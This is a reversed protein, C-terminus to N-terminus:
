QEVLGKVMAEACVRAGGEFELCFPLQAGAVPRPQLGFVMLHYGGPALLLAGGAKIPLPGAPGMHMMGESMSHQHIAASAAGEVTAGRLVVETTGTNRLGFYIAANGPGPPPELLWPSEIRVDAAAANLVVFTCAMFALLLRM